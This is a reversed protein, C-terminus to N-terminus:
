KNTEPNHYLRRESPSGASESASECRLFAMDRGTQHTSLSM